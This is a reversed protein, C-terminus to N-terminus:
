KLFGENEARNWCEDRQSKTIVDTPLYEAAFTWLGLELYQDYYYDFIEILNDTQMLRTEDRGGWRFDQQIEDPCDWFSISEKLVVQELFYAAARSPLVKEFLLNKYWRKSSREKINKSIGPKLYGPYKHLNFIYFSTDEKLKFNSTADLAHQVSDGLNGPSRVEYGKRRLLRFITSQEVKYKKELSRTSEGSKYKECVELEFEKPIGNNPWRAESISRPKTEGLRLVRVM